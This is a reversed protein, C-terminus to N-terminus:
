DIYNNRELHDLLLHHCIIHELMKCTISTLSIPRYNVPDHKNGKKFIPCVNADRWDKPLKCEHLSKRFIATVAPAIEEHCTKLIITPLGDPGCTKCPNLEKLLKKVGENQVELPEIESYTNQPIVPLPLLTNKNFVSKFQQNLLEAKEKAGHFLRGDKKIPAIGINDKRKSKIYKWFPKNNGTAMAKEFVNNLYKWHAM